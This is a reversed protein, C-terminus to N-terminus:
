GAYTRAARHLEWRLSVACPHLTLVNQNLWLCGSALGCLYVCLCRLHVRMQEVLCGSPRAAVSTILICDLCHDYLGMVDVNSLDYTTLVGIFSLCVVVTMVCSKAQM